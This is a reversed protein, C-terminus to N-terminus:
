DQGSSILLCLAFIQPKKGLPASHRSSRTTGISLTSLVPVPPLLGDRDTSSKARTKFIIQFVPCSVFFLRERDFVM